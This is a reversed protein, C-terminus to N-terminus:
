KKIEERLVCVATHKWNIQHHLRMNKSGMLGIRTGSPHYIITYFSKVYTGSAQYVDTMGGSNSQTAKQVLSAGMHTLMLKGTSGFVTYTNVDENVRGMFKFPKDTSCVFSNMCKRKCLPKNDAGGIFDGGQGMAVTLIPTKEVYEVMATFIGDIDKIVPAKKGWNGTEDIRYQWSSYDDDLQIFYKYGLEKAIEFCANRAYVITRRDYFNDGEDMTKAVTAKDFVYVDDGYLELYRNLQSDETDVVIVVRGSYNMRKLSNLTHLQDPRGHTLIFAVFDDRM